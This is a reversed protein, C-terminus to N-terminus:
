LAASVEIRGNKSSVSVFNLYEHNVQITDNADNSTNHTIVLQPGSVNKLSIAGQFSDSDLQLNQVTWDIVLNGDFVGNTAVAASDHPAGMMAQIDLADREWLLKGNGRLGIKHLNGAGVARQVPHVLYANNAQNTDLVRVRTRTIANDCTLDITQSTSVNGTTDNEQFSNKFLYELPKSKFQRERYVDYSQEDLVVYEAYLQISGSSFGHEYDLIATLAKCDLSLTLNDLFNTDLFKEPNDDMSFSFPLPVYGVFSAGLVAAAPDATKCVAVDMATRKEYPLSNIWDRIRQPHLYEVSRNNNSLSVSNFLNIFGDSVYNQVEGDGAGDVASATSIKLWLKRLLGAKTIKFTHTAANSNSLTKTESAIEVQHNPMSKNLMYVFADANRHDKTTLSQVISSGKNSQIVSM